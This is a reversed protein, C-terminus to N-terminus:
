HQLGLTLFLVLVATGGDKPQHPAPTCLALGLVPSQLALKLM